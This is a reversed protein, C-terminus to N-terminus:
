CCNAGTGTCLSGVYCTITPCMCPSTDKGFMTDPDDGGGLLNEMDRLHLDAITKKSLSLKKNLKKPKM